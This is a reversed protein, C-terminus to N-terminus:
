RLAQHFQLCVLFWRRVTAPLKEAPLSSTLLVEGDPAAVQFVVEGRLDAKNPFTLTVDGDKPLVTSTQANVWVTAAEGEVGPVLERHTFTAALRHSSFDGGGGPASITVRVNQPPLEEPEESEPGASVGNRLRDVMAESFGPVASLEDVVRFRGVATRHAIVREALVRGVGPLSTLEDIGATNLNIKNAM